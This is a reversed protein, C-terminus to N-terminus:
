QPIWEKKYQKWGDAFSHVLQQLYSMVKAMEPRECFSLNPMSTNQAACTMREPSVRIAIVENPHNRLLRRMQKKSLEGEPMKAVLEAQVPRDDTSAKGFILQNEQSRTSRQQTEM